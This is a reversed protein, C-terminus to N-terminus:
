RYSVKDMGLMTNSCKFFCILKIENLSFLGHGNLIPKIDVRLFLTFFKAELKILDRDMEM